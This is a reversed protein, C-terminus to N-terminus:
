FLRSIPTQERKSQLRAVSFDQMSGETGITVFDWFTPGRSINEIERGFGIVTFLM